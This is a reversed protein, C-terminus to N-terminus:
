GDWNRIEAARYIQEILLLRAFQHTLTMDSLGLYHYARNTNSYPRLEAPLGEAGGIVFSLRSGGKEAWNYFNRSFSESSYQKANPDLLIISQCSDNNVAKLLAEPNKVKRLMYRICVLSGGM